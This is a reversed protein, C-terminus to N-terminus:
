SKAMPNQNRVQSRFDYVELIGVNFKSVILQVTLKDKASAVPVLIAPNRCHPPLPQEFKCVAYLGALAIVGGVARSIDFNRIDFPAVVGAMGVPNNCDEETGGALSLVDGVILGCARGQLDSRIARGDSMRLGSSGVTGHLLLSGFPVKSTTCHSMESLSGYRCTYELVLAWMPQGYCCESGNNLGSSLRVNAVDDNAFMLAKRPLLIVSEKCLPACTVNSHRCQSLLRQKTAAIAARELEVFSITPRMQMHGHQEM